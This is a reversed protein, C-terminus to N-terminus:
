QTPPFNYDNRTVQNAYSVGRKCLSDTTVAVINPWDIPGNTRKFADRVSDYVCTAGANYNMLSLKWLTGYDVVLNSRWGTANFILHTTQDCYSYVVNALLKVSYNAQDTNIGTKCTPCTNVMQSFMMEVTVNDAICNNSSSGCVIALLQPNQYLATSAGIDTVQGLGYHGPVDESPWFQSETRILQKLLVPPVGTGSYQDLVAQNLSNQIIVVTPKAATMGCTNAYSNSALGNAPCGSADVVGALILRGALWQLNDESYLESSATPIYTWGLDVNAINTRNLCSSNNGTPTPYPTFTPYLNPTATSNVAFYGSAQTLGQIFLLSLALFALFCFFSVKRFQM